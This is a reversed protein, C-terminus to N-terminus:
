FSQFYWQNKLLFTRFFKPKKRLANLFFSDRVPHAVLRARTLTSTYLVWGCINVSAIRSSFMRWDRISCSSSSSSSTFAFLLLLDTPFKINHVNCAIHRWLFNNEISRVCSCTFRTICVYVAYISSLNCVCVYLYIKIYSTTSSVHM